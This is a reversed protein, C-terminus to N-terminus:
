FVTSFHRLYGSDCLRPRILGPLGSLTTVRTAPRSSLRDRVSVGVDGFHLQGLTDLLFQFELWTCGVSIGDCQLRKVSGKFAVDGCRTLDSLCDFALACNARVLFPWRDSDIDARNWLM